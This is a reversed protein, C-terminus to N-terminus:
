AKEERHHRRKRRRELTKDSGSQSRSSKGKGTRKKNRDHKFSCSDGRLCHGKSTWQNCDGYKRDKITEQANHEPNGSPNGEGAQQGKFLCTKMAPMSIPQGRIKEEVHRRVMEKSFLQGSRREPSYGASVFGHSTEIGRHLPAAEQVVNEMTDEDPVTTM